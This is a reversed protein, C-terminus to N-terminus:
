ALFKEETGIGDLQRIDLITPEFWGTQTSAEMAIPLPFCGIQFNLFDFVIRPPRSGEDVAVAPM